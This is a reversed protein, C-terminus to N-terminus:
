DQDGFASLVRAGGGTGVEEDVVTDDVDWGVLEMTLEVVAVDVLSVVVPAGLVDVVVPAIVVDLSVVVPAALVDVVVPSTVVDDLSVVVLAGLVDVVVPSVM